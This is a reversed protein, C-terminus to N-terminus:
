VDMSFSQPRALLVGSRSDKRILSARNNKLHQIVRQRHDIKRRGTTIGRRRIGRFNKYMLEAWTCDKMLNTYELESKDQHIRIIRNSNNHHISRHIDKQHFSRLNCKNRCRIMRSLLHKQFTLIQRSLWSVWIRSTRILQIWIRKWFRLM